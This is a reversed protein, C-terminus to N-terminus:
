LDEAELCAHIISFIELVTSARRIKSKIQKSRPKCYELAWLKAKFLEEKNSNSNLMADYYNAGLEAEKKRQGLQIEVSTLDGKKDKLWTDAKTIESVINDKEASLNDKEALLNDKEVVLNDKEARIEPINMAEKALEIALPMASDRIREKILVTELLERARTEVMNALKRGAQKKYEITRTILTDVDFGEEVLAQYEGDNPDAEVFHNYIIGREKDNVQVQITTYEKNVYFADYVKGTFIAM